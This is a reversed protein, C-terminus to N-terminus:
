IFIGDQRMDNLTMWHEGEDGWQKWLEEPVFDLSSGQRTAFDVNLSQAARFMQEEESASKFMDFEYMYVIRRAARFFKAKKDASDLIDDTVLMIMWSINPYDRLVNSLSGDEFGSHVVNTIAVHRLMTPTCGIAERFHSLLGVEPSDDYHQVNPSELPLYLIDTDFRFYFEKCCITELKCPLKVIHGARLAQYHAEARSEQCINVVVPAPSPSYRPCFTDEEHNVNHRRTALAVLRFSQSFYAAAWIQLRIEKPLASISM